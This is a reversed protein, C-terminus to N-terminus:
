YDAFPVKEASEYYYIWIYHPYDPSDELCSYILLTDIYSLSIKSYKYKNM